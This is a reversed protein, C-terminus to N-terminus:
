YDRKSPSQTPRVHGFVKLRARELGAKKRSGQSL